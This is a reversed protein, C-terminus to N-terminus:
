FTANELDDQRAHRGNGSSQRVKEVGVRRSSNRVLETAQQLRSALYNSARGETKPGFQASMTLGSLADASISTELAVM